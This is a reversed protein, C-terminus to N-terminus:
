MNYQRWSDQKSKRDRQVYTGGAQLLLYVFSIGPGCKSGQLPNQGPLNRKYLFLNCVWEVKAASHIDSRLDSATCNTGKTNYNVPLRKVMYQHGTCVRQPFCNLATTETEFESEYLM